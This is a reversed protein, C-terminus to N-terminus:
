DLHGDLSSGDCLCHIWMISYDATMWVPCIQVRLTSIHFWSWPWTKTITTKVNVPLEQILRMQLCHPSTPWSGKIHNKATWDKLSHITFDLWKEQYKEKKNKKTTVNYIFTHMYPCIGEFLLSIRHLFFDSLLNKLFVISILFRFKPSPPLCCMRKVSSLCLLCGDEFDPISFYWVSLQLLFGPTKAKYSKIDKSNPKPMLHRKWFLGSFILGM